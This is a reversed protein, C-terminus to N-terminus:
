LSPSNDGTAADTPNPNTDDSVLMVEMDPNDKVWERWTAPLTEGKIKLITYAWCCFDSFGFNRGDSARRNEIREWECMTFLNTWLYEDKNDRTVKIKLKM